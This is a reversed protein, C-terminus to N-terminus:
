GGAAKRRSEAWARRTKVLQSFRQVEGGYQKQGVEAAAQDSFAALGSAMPTRLTSGDTVLFVATEGALWGGGIHDHVFRGVVSLENERSRELDLMCGIDDFLLHDRRGGQEVLMAASAPEDHIAM